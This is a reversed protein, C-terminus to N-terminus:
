QVVSASLGSGSLLLRHAVEKGPEGSLAGLCLLSLATTDYEGYRSQNALCREVLEAGNSPWLNWSALGVLSWGLSIPTRLRQVEEDLYSLSHAITNREVSGALGTLAAGTSEPMPHLERGFMFTNGYNWGGRPLQRNLLMQVAERVREHKGHGTRRIAMVCMATPEVWSHTEDIWPWGKLQTDHAWPADSRRSFHLGTTDLLFRVARLQAERSTPSDHWSLIAISTPWYSIPHDRNICVRGDESQERVLSARFCELLEDSGGCARFALIGWATADVQFQGRPRDTFGDRSLIRQSLQKLLSQSLSM